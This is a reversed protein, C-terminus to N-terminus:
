WMHHSKKDRHAAQHFLLSLSRGAGCVPTQQDYDAVMSVWRHTDRSVHGPTVALITCKIQQQISYTGFLHTPGDLFSAVALRRGQIQHLEDTAAAHDVRVLALLDASRVTKMSAQLPGILDFVVQWALLILVTLALFRRVLQKKTKM